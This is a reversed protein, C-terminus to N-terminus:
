ALPLQSSQHRAPISQDLKVWVHTSTSTNTAGSEVWAKLPTGGNAYPANITFEVNSWNANITPYEASDIAILQQFPASTPSPQSNYLVIATFPTTVNVPTFNYAEPQPASTGNDKVFVAVTTNKM